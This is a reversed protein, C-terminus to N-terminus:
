VATRLVNKNRIRPGNAGDARRRNAGSVGSSVGEDSGLNSGEESGNSGSRSGTKECSDNSGDNSDKESGNSGSRSGSGPTDGASTSDTTSVARGERPKAPQEFRQVCILVGAVTQEKGGALILEVSEATKMVVFGLSGPRIRPQATPNNRFPKVKSHAVLVRSVEGYRSFHMTLIEQSQFGMSTIRRVIFVCRPDETQMDTLHMGLTEKRQADRVVEQNGVSIPTATSRQPGHTPVALSREARVNAGAHSCANGNPIGTREQSRAAALAAGAAAAASAAAAALQLAIEHEQAASSAASDPPGPPCYPPFRAAAPAPPAMWQSPRGHDGTDPGVVRQWRAAAATAAANAAATAACADFSAAAVPAVPPAIPLPRLPDQYDGTPHYDGTQHGDLAAAAQHLRDQLNRLQEQMQQLRVAAPDQFTQLHQHLHQMQVKVPDETWPQQPVEFPMTQAPQSMVQVLKSLSAVLNATAASCEDAVPAAHPPQLPEQRQQQQQQRQQHHQQQHQQLQWLHLWPSSLNSETAYSLAMPPPAGSAAVLLQAGPLQLGNLSNDAYSDLMATSNGKMPPVPEDQQCTAELGPPVAPTVIRAGFAPHM